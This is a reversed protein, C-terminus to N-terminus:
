AELSESTQTAEFWRSLEDIDGLATVAARLDAPVPVHFRLEIARLIVKRLRELDTEIRAEAQWELVQQSVQMNWGKLAERWVPRRGALEAFVLALGAYDGRRPTSPEELALRIWETIIGAEGGGRMLPIWPLLGRSLEGSAIGVLTAAADEEAFTILVVRLHLGAGDLDAERMDLESPQARGTLNLLVSVVQYKGEAGVGYRQGRRLRYAYEGLRELIDGHPESQSEVDLLRRPGEGDRPAFEAVTDCIRDPEGPFALTTTDLWGLFTFRDVFRRMRWLFFASPDSKLAYHSAQDFVGMDSRGRRRKKCSRSRM